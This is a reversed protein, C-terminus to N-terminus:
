VRSGVIRRLTEIGDEIARAFEAETAGTITLEAKRALVESAARIDTEAAEAAWDPRDGNRLVAGIETELAEAIVIAITQRVTEEPTPLTGGESRDLVWQAVEAAVYREEHDEITGDARSGCAIDVIRRILELPDVDRLEAYNLGLLQLTGADGSRFAYAAAAARGATAASRAASRRAGGGSRGGTGPASTGGGGGMAGSGGDGTKSGRGRILSIIPLLLDPELRPRDVPQPPADDGNNAPQPPNPPGPPGLPLSDLWADVDNRVDKGARGGSGTYSGSTGM